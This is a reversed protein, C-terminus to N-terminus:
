RHGMGIRLEELEDGSEAFLLEFPLFGGVMREITDALRHDAAQLVAAEPGFANGVLEPERRVAQM